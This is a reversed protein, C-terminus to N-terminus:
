SNQNAIRATQNALGIKVPAFRPPNARTWAIQDRATFTAPEGILVNTDRYSGRTERILRNTERM